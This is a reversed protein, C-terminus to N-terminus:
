TSRSGDWGLRMVAEIASRFESTSGSQGVGRVGRFREGSTLTVDQLELRAPVAIGTGLLLGDPVFQSEGLGPIVLHQRPQDVMRLRLPRVRRQDVPKATGPLLPAGPAPCLVGLRDLDRPGPDFRALPGLSMTAWPVRQITRIIVMGLLYGAPTDSIWHYGLYSQSILLIVPPAIYLVMRQRQTLQTGLLMVFLAFWVATNAAHGSPYSMKDMGSFLLSGAADVFPPPGESDPFRPAVRDMWEKAAGVVLYTAVYTTLYLLIPRISRYRWATIITLGLAIMALPTGQGVYRAKDAIFRMVEPQNALSWDRAVIDLTILPSPWLLLASIAAFGLLMLVDPWWSKPGGEYPKWRHGTDPWYQDLLSRRWSTTASSPAADKSAAKGSRSPRATVNVM